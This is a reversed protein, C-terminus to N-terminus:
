RGKDVRSQGAGTLRIGGHGQEILKLRLLVERHKRLIRSPRFDRGVERLATIEEPDLLQNEDMTAAHWRTSFDGMPDCNLSVM